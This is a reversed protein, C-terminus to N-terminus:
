PNSEREDFRELAAQLRGQCTQLAVRQEHAAAIARTLQAQFSLAPAYQEAIGLAEYLAQIEQEM